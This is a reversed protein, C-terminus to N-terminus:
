VKAWARGDANLDILKLPTGSVSVGTANASAVFIIDNPLYRPVIVQSENSTSITATREVNSPYSYTVPVGDIVASGISTRLKYSKAVYVDSGGETTGDWTRCTLYDGQVSKVRYMQVGGGGGGQFDPADATKKANYSASRLFMAWCDAGSADVGKTERLKVELGMTHGPDSPNTGPNQGLMLRVSGYTAVTAGTSDTVRVDLRLNKADRSIIVFNGAM